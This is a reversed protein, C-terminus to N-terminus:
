LRLTIPESANHPWYFLLLALTTSLLTIAFTYYLLIYLRVVQALLFSLSFRKASAHNVLRIGSIWM